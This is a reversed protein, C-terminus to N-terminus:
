QRKLRCGIGSITEILKHELKTRLRYILTRITSSSIPELEYIYVEIMEFTVPQGKAEILLMLLRKEHKGLAIRHDHYYLQQKSIDIFYGEGLYLLDNVPEYSKALDRKYKALRLNAKLDGEEYPKLIYGLPYTQIAREITTDDDYATLYICHLHFRELLFGAIDIGDYKANLNIDMLVLDPMERQVSNITEDFTSLEDTVHYGLRKLTQAIEYAVIAEDEVILVSGRHM